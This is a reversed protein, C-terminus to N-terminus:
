PQETNSLIDSGAAKRLQRLVNKDAIRSLFILPKSPILGLKLDKKVMNLAPILQAWVSDDMLILTESSALAPDLWSFLILPSKPNKDFYETGSGAIVVLPFDDSITFAAYSDYFRPELEPTDSGFGQLFADKGANIDPKNIFVPIIGTKEGGLIAAFRGTRYLDLKKDTSFEFFLETEDSNSATSPRRRDPGARGYLLITRAEPYQRHFRRAGEAYRYPFVVCWPRPDADEVALVLLDAGVSDAVLVQKVRRGAALSATLLRMKTRRSGYLLTFPEDTVMLVPSRLYFVLAAVGLILVLGAGAIIKGKHKM